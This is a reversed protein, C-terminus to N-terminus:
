ANVGKGDNKREYRNVFFRLNTGLLVNRMNSFTAADYFLHAFKYM